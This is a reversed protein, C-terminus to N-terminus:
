NWWASSPHSSHAKVVITTTLTEALPSLQLDASRGTRGCIGIKQGPLISMSINNLVPATDLRNRDTSSVPIVANKVYGYSASVGEFTLHGLSPWAAGPDADERSILENPTDESFSKIRAVAGLSTELSTWFTILHALTMGLNTVQVFAVGLLGASVKSRLFVALTILLIALGAVTLDLVLTLWRQICLLLYYPKQSSDLLRLNKSKYAETWGFARITM